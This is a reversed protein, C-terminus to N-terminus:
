GGYVAISLGAGRTFDIGVLNLCLQQLDVGLELRSRYCTDFGIFTERTDRALCRGMDAGNTRDRWKQWTVLALSDFDCECFIGLQALAQVPGISGVGGVNACPVLVVLHNGNSFSVDPFAAAAESTAVEYSVRDCPVSSTFTGTRARTFSSIAPAGDQQWEALTTDVGAEIASRGADFAALNSALAVYVRHATPTPATAPLTTAVLALLTALVAARAAVM